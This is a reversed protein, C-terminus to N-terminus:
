LVIDAIKDKNKEYIEKSRPSDFDFKTDLRNEYDPYKNDPNPKTLFIRHLEM